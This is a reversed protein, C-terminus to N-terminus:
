GSKQKIKLNHLKFHLSCKTKNFHIISRKETTVLHKDLMVNKMLFIQPQQQLKM